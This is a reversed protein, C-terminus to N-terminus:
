ARIKVTRASNAGITLEIISAVLVAATEVKIPTGIAQSTDLVLIGPLPIMLIKTSASKM